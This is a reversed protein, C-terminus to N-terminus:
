AFGRRQRHVVEIKGQRGLEDGLRWQGLAAGATQEHELAFRQVVPEKAIQGSKEFFAVQEDEVVAPHDV